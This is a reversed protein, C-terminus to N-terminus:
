MEQFSRAVLRKTCGGESALRLGSPPGILMFILLRMGAQATTAAVSSAAASIAAQPPLEPPPTACILV